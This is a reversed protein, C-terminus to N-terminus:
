SSRYGSAVASARGEDGAPQDLDRPHLAGRRHCMSAPALAVILNPEIDEALASSGEMLTMAGARDHSM